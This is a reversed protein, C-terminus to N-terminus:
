RGKGAQGADPAVREVKMPKRGARAQLRYIAVTAVVGTAAQPLGAPM